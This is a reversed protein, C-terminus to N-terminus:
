SAAVDIVSMSSDAHLVETSDSCKYVNFDYAFLGNTRTVSASCNKAM